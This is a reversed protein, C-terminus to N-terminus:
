HAAVVDLSCSSGKQWFWGTSLWLEDMLVVILKVRPYWCCGGDVEVGGGVVVVTWEVGLYGGGCCGWILEGAVDGGWVWSVVVCWRVVM